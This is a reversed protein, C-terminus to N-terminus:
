RSPRTADNVHEPCAAHAANIAIAEVRAVILLIMATSTPGDRLRPSANPRGILARASESSNGM